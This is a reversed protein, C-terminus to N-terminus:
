RDRSCADPTNPKKNNFEKAWARGRRKHFADLAVHLDDALYPHTAKIDPIKITSKITMVGNGDTQTPEGM